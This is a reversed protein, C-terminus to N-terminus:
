RGPQGWDDTYGHLGVPIWIACAGAHVHPLTTNHQATISGNCQQFDSALRYCLSTLSVVSGM